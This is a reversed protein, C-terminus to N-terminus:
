TLRTITPQALNSSFNLAAMIGDGNVTFSAGPELVVGTWAYKAGLNSGVTPITFELTYVQLDSDTDTSAWDSGVYGTDGDQRCIDALVSAATNAGADYVRGSFAITSAGAQEGKRPTAAFDGNSDKARVVTWGGNVYNLDGEGLNLTHTKATGDGSKLVLTCGRRTRFQSPDAM